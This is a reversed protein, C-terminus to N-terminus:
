KFLKCSVDILKMLDNGKVKQKSTTVISDTQNLQKGTQADSNANANADNKMPKNNKDAATNTKAELPANNKTSTASPHVDIIRQENSHLPSSESGIGGNNENNSLSM